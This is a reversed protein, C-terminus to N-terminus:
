LCVGSCIMPLTRSTSTTTARPAVIDSALRQSRERDAVQVRDGVTSAIAHALEDQVDFIDQVDRDYREAWIHNGKETEILQATLRIRDGSRRISGEVLYRVGLERGVRRMDVAKDRFQFSSNRAIVFLSRFRSLETIIDETIGDSFYAQEQVGSMNTFPLVAISVKESMGAPAQLASTAGTVEGVRYARVPEAINKL